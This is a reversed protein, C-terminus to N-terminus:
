EYKWIFGKATKRKGCCAMSINNKTTKVFNAAESIGNFMNLINLDLDLQLVNKKVINQKM